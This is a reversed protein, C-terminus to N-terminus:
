NLTDSLGIDYKQIRMADFIDITGDRNVDAALKQKDTFVIRGIDMLLIRFADQINVRGDANVDGLLVSVANIAGPVTKCPVLNMDMDEIMANEVGVMIQAGDAAEDSVLFSISALEGGANIEKAGVWSVKIKRERTEPDIYNINVMASTEEIVSGLTYTVPTLLTADYDVIISGSAMGSNGDMQVSVTTVTGIEATKGIVSITKEDSVISVTVRITPRISLTNTISGDEPLRFAGYFTYTGSVRPSYAPESVSSWTVPLSVSQTSDVVAYVTTPFLAMVDNLTMYSELLLPNQAMASTISRASTEEQAVRVKASAALADTNKITGSGPLILRGTFTYEVSTFANYYPESTESWAVSLEVESGDDLVANVTEPLMTLVTSLSTGKVVGFSIEDLSVLERVIAAEPKREIQATATINNTNTINVHDPITIVGSFAYETGNTYRWTVELSALVGTSLMVEVVSPLLLLMDELETNHPVTYATETVVRVINGSKEQALVSLTFAASADGATATITVVGESVAVVTGDQKVIAVNENSSSWVIRDTANAPLTKAQMALAEGVNLASVAATITISVTPIVTPLAGPGSQWILYPYASVTEDRTWAAEFDWDRYPDYKSLEEATKGTAYSDSLNNDTANYYCSEFTYPGHWYYAFGYVVNGSGTVRGRAICSTYRNYYYYNYGCFGGVYNSGTVDGDALCNQLTVSPSNSGSSSIYGAFGGTYSLGSVTGASYSATISGSYIIEGAFGGTESAGTVDGLAYCSAITSGSSYGLFGGTYSGSGTVGGSAYCNRIVAYNGCGAFGGTYSSGTVVSSSGSLTAAAYNAYGILGGVYDTGSVANSSLCRDIMTYDGCGLLGGIYKKAATEYADNRRVSGEASSLRLFGYYDYGVLGGTYSNGSVTAQSRCNDIMLDNRGAVGGVYSEASVSGRVTSNRILGYNRGVLGGVYQKGSINGSVTCDLVTGYNKGALAGAFAAGDAATITGYEVILNKVVGGPKIECFLGGDSEGLTMHFGYLKHGNGDLTGSFNGLSTVTRDLEIDAILKYNGGPADAIAYFGAKDAIEIVTDGSADRVVYSSFYPYGDNIESDLLWVTEYDWGIYTSEKRLQESTKPLGKGTDSCGSTQTDYYCNLTRGSLEGLFGGSNSGGVVSGTSYNYQLYGANSGAFGGVHDSGLVSSRAFCLTVNGNTNIMGVLGGVYSNGVVAGLSYCYTIKGGATGALGGIYSRGSAECDTYTNTITGSSDGVVGGVYNNGTVAGSAYVDKITSSSYGCIGGVDNYGTIGAHVACRNISYNTYGAIGGIYSGSGTNGVITGTFTADSVASTAQGIIGGVYSSTAYIECASDSFTMSTSSGSIGGIYSSGHLEANASCRYVTGGSGVIGGVYNTGTVTLKEVSCNHVYGSNSGVIGGVRESGTIDGSVTTSSVSGSNSGAAGGAAGSNSLQVEATCDSILGYNIAVIGGCIDTSRVNGKVGCNRISGHNSAAIIGAYKGSNLTAVGYDSTEVRLNKVEGLRGIYGFMGALAYEYEEDQQVFFGRITYGNGDLLGDFPKAESGVPQWTETLEIDNALKYKGSLDKRIRFLEEENHILTYQYTDEVTYAEAGLAILYPYGNNQDPAISWITSFDWSPFSTSTKFGEDSLATFYSDSSRGARDMHFYCNSVSVSGSGIVPCGASIVASYVNVMNCSYNTIRGVLAGVNSNGSVEGDAYGNRIVPSNSNGVSIEGILGGVSSNGKVKASSYCTSITLNNSTNLRGILGGYYSGTNSIAGVEGKACSDSLSSRGSLEGLIGGATGNAHVVSHSVANYIGGSSMSGAVGGVYNGGTVSAEVRVNRIVGTNRAVIGGAYNASSLVSGLVTVDEIYGQNEVAIGAGSLDANTTDVATDLVLNRVIGSKGIMEFLPYVVGDENGTRNTITFGGGDLIGLFPQASSCLMGDRASLVIDTALRYKGEPADAIGALDRENRILPYTSSDDTASASKLYPMGDNTSASMTWVDDFDWNQFTEQKRLQEETRTGFASDSGSKKLAYCHLLKFRTSDSYSAISSILETNGAYCNELTVYGTVSYAFGGIGSSGSVQGVAYSNKVIKRYSENNQSEVLQGVLGGAYYYGYVTATSYCEDIVTRSSYDSFTGYGVLGGAAQNSTSTNRSRVIGATGTRRVSGGAMYGVAGGTYQAGIVSGVASCGSIAGKTQYGAIGGSYLGGRLTSSTYCNSIEAHNRAVIGGTYDGSNTITGSVSCNEITGYNNVAIGGAEGTARIGTAGLEINLNKVVGSSAVTYFLGGSVCDLNLGSITYGNGDFTGFFSLKSDGITTWDRTLEIDGNLIYNGALNDAVARLESETNIVITNTENASYNDRLYPFGNNVAPDIDWVTEYDWTLYNESTKMKATPKGIGNESEGQGTTETDYYCKEILTGTMSERYGTIGGSQSVDAVRGIAYCNYCRANASLYGFLGGAYSSANIGGTAYCNQVTLSNNSVYAGGILGGAYASAWIDANSFSSEITGSQYSNNYGCYGILGGAYHGTALVSGGTYCETINAKYSHGILGGVYYTGQVVARTYCGTLSLSGESYGVLGGASESESSVAGTFYCDTLSGSGTRGVLGGVCYATGAVNCSAHCNSLKASSFGILGGVYISGLVQCTAFCNETVSYDSGVLGGVTNGGSVKGEARCSRIVGNGSSYGILGGVYSSGSISGNTESDTVSGTNYGVLGGTYSASSTLTVEASCKDISGSNYGVLGGVYTTAKASGEVHCREISGTNCGALIGATASDGRLSLVSRDDTEVNLNRITGNNISFLGANQYSFEQDSIVYLNSITHGNGEFVGSFSIPTWEKSLVIDNKLEYTLMSAPNIAALEAESTIAVSTEQEATMMLKKLFVEGIDCRFTQDNEVFLTTETQSVPACVVMAVSHLENESISGAVLYASEGESNLVAFYAGGVYVIEGTLLFYRGSLGVESHYLEWIATYDAFTEIPEAVATETDFDESVVSIVSSVSVGAESSNEGPEEIQVSATGEAVGNEDGLGSQAYAPLSSLLLSFTLLLAVMKMRFDGEIKTRYNQVVYGILSFHLAIMKTSAARPLAAQGFLFNQPNESQM